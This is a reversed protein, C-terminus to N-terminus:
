RGVGASSSAMMEPRIQINQATLSGDANSTGSVTVQQGVNIDTITGPANKQIQTSTSYFINISGGNRLQLTLSTSDKSLVQGATIGGGMTGNRMGGANGRGAFQAMRNQNSTSISAEGKKVGAYFCLVGVIVAIVVIKLYAKNM